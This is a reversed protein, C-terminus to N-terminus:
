GLVVPWRLPPKVDAACLLKNVTRDPGLLPLPIKIEWTFTTVNEYWSL